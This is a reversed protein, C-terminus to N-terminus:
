DVVKSFDFIEFIYNRISNLFGKRNNKINEDEDNILVNDLYCNIPETLSSLEVLKDNYNYDNNLITNEVEKFKNCLNMEIENFLSEDFDTNDATKSINNVRNFAEVEKSRDEKFWQNIEHSKKFITFIQDEDSDLIADAIYYPIDEELLIVRIRGKFFDLIESSVKDYDFVLNNEEVYIVLSEKILEKLSITWNNNKIISIAGIAARRLGFPDQSGTPKNGIAFMGAIADIKDALALVSSVTTSPISDKSFRPLYQERISTSVLDSEGANKAYIEGMIGQLESFEAVMQTTMDNKSLSAARKLDEISEDALHLSEAIKESLEEIRSVRTKVTGLGEHYIIGDLKDNLSQFDNNLDEDFFFKADELRAGLVKENGLVIIDKHKDTGNVISVFYPLLIDEKVDKYIPIFRLHDKMPTTIVVSPLDLYEDKIKGLIPTPYEVINVLEELLDDDIVAEGNVEKAIRESEIKITKRRKSSNAIVYNEKLKSEYESPNNIVIESSGLFRHGRTINSSIIDELEIKVERDGYISLLWRIPRAFRINKGGWKMNKPFNINKIISPVNESLIEDVKKADIKKNGYIYGDRVEITDLTLGQSKMFGLLAKSPNNEDDFAIKESPGKVEEESAEKEEALNKVLLTLRRPTSFKEVSEFSLENEDLFKRFNNEFQAVASDIYHAPLEEVGVEILYDNM